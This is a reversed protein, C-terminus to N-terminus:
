LFGPRSIPISSGITRALLAPVRFESKPKVRIRRKMRLLASERVAQMPSIRSIDMLPFLAALMVCGLSILLDAALFLPTLYFVYGIAECIGWVALCSLGVALPASVLAILLAERGFIRRIQRRTAGVARLMGIQTRRENLRMSFANVIGMCAAIVLTLALVEIQYYDAGAQTIVEFRFDDM